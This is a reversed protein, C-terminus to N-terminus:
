PQPRFVLQWAPTGKKAWQRYGRMAQVLINMRTVDQRLVAKGFFAAFQLCGLLWFWGKWKRHLMLRSLVLHFDARQKGPHRVGRNSETSSGEKHFVVSEPVWALRYGQQRGRLAWDLEEFYLFHDADMLGVKDLFARSVLMSAGIVYDMRSEVDSLPPFPSSASSHYGLPTVLGRVADYTAGGFAQIQDPHDFCRLTSGVMGIRPDREARERLLRLAEPRVITDNNLIWVFRVAHNALLYQLATNNGAAFGHNHENRILILRGGGPRPLPPVTPEQPKVVHYPIPKELPPTVLRALEPHAPPAIRIDGRAWAQLREFSEDQSGNDCVVVGYDPEDSRLLSELCLATDFWRQWNIVVVWTKM